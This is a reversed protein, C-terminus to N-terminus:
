QEISEYSEEDLNHLWNFIMMNREFKSLPRGREREVDKLTLPIEKVPKKKTPLKLTDLESKSVIPVDTRTAAISNMSVVVPLKELDFDSQSLRELARYAVLLRKRIYLQRIKKNVSRILDAPTFSSGGNPGLHTRGQPSPLQSTSSVDGVAVWTSCSRSQVGFHTRFIVDSCRVQSLDLESSSKRLPPAPPQSPDSQQLSSSIDTTSFSKPLGLFKFLAGFNKILDNEEEVWIDQSKFGDSSNPVALRHRSDPIPSPIRVFPGLSSLSLLSIETSISEHSPSRLIRNSANQFFSVM